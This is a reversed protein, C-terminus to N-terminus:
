RANEKAAEEEEEEDLHYEQVAEARTLTEELDIETGAGRCASCVVLAGRLDPSLRRGCCVPCLMNM